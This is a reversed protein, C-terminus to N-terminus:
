HLLWGFLCGKPQTTKQLMLNQDIMIFGSCDAPCQWSFGDVASVKVGPLYSQILQSPPDFLESFGCKNCPSITWNVRDALYKETVLFPWPSDPKIQFLFHSDKQIQRVIIPDQLLRAEFIRGRRGVIEAWLLQPMKFHNSSAIAVEEIRANKQPRVVCVAPVPGGDHICVQVQNRNIPHLKNALYPIQEWESSVQFDEFV